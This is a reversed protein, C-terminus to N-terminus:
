FGASGPKAPMRIKLRGFKGVEGEIRALRVGFQFRSQCETPVFFEEYLNRLGVFM